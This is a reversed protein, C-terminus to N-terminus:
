VWDQYRLQATSTPITDETALITDGDERDLDVPSATEMAELMGSSLPLVHLNSAADQGVSPDAAEMVMAM